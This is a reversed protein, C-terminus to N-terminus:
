FSPLLDSICGSLQQMSIKNISSCPICISFLALLQFPSTVEFYLLWNNIGADFGKDFHYAPPSGDLCVTFLIRLQLSSLMFYFNNSKRFSDSGAGKAVASQLYTIGVFFGDVNSVTILVTLLLVYCLLTQKKTTDVM